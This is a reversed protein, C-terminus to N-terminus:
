NKFHDYHKLFMVKHRSFQTPFKKEPCSLCPKTFQFETKQIVLPRQFNLKKPHNSLEPFMYKSKPSQLM